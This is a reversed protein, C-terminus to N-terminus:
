KWWKIMRAKGWEEVKIRACEDFNGEILIDEIEKETPPQGDGEWEVIFKVKTM